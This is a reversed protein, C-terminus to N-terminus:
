DPQVVFFFALYLNVRRGRKRAFHHQQQQKKSLFVAFNRFQDISLCNVIVGDERYFITENDWLQVM